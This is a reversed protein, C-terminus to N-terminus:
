LYKNLIKKPNLRNEENYEDFSVNAIIEVTTGVLDQLKDEIGYGNSIATIIDEKRMGILEEALTDFFTVSIDGTEDEIRTPIMLTYKPEDFTHGCNDCYFDDEGEDVRNGCNPCKILLYRDISVDNITGTIHVNTDDELLSEITKPAYIMEMLEEQSPLKEIESESPTLITTRSSVSAEVRNDTNISFRANQLKLPQGIEYEKKANKDWLVVRISGSEDALEINRVYGTDGTDRDFERIENIEIIRGIIIVDEEDEDVDSINKYDFITKELTSLEPIFMASAEEDTLKILRAGSGINLDVNYMGLRTRANEIKYADGVGYAQEAKENWFSLNVKGTEDAFIASRVQGVEGDDRQFENIENVSILRGVIDIEIGDEDIEYIEGIPTPHLEEKLNNLEDLEEISLNQPNVTIQTNFTTNMSYQSQTYEDFKIDGGIVKIIDGKNIEIDTDDGWLTVKIEGTSDRVTFNRLKGETNDSKRIFIKIDQLRSVIGKISVNKSESLDAIPTFEINFEPVDFDGKIIRGDWHTLSMERKGDFTDRERAQAQIIKVTDGDELGLDKIIEVNNNWLTYSIQGTRDQLEITAVKGEKGNKEYTRITSIRIIRAIINVKTDDQIDEINTINEIYDPFKSPDEELHVVTSRPRLNAELGSYGDKIDVDKIQIIDGENVNKLLKINQTWFVAKMEGTNDKLQVNCVEGSQGKRTKFSKPNSISIVRGEITVGRSKDELESITKNSFEPTESIAEADETHYEGLVMDALSTNTMFPNQSEQRKFHEMRKLFDEESIQDKIKEYKERIEDTMKISSESEIRQVVTEAAGYEDIFENNDKIKNIENIFNEESIKDKIKEYEKRIKDEM